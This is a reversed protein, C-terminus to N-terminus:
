EVKNFFGHVIEDGHICKSSQSEKTLVVRM